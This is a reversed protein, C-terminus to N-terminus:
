FVEIWLNGGMTYAKAVFSYNTGGVTTGNGTAIDPIGSCPQYFGVSGGMGPISQTPNAPEKLQFKMYTWRQDDAINQPIQYPTLYNGDYWEDIPYPHGSATDSDTYKAYKAIEGPGLPIVPGLAQYNPNCTNPNTTFLTFNLNLSHNTDHNIIHIVGEGTAPDIQAFAASGLSLGLIITLIKKM